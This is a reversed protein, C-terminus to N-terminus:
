PLIPKASLLDCLARATEEWPAIIAYDAYDFIPAKKDTNVAAVVKAEKMGAIHQVAGSIGFALYLKPRVFAGTLGIQCEYPAFNALVASRSAGLAANPIFSVLSRLVDFGEKSGIARGGAVVVEASQLSLKDTEQSVSSLIKLLGSIEFKEYVVEGREHYDERAPLLASERVTAMQPRAAECLIEASLSGGFAPRFQHLLGDKGLTVNICDATLGTSLLAATMPAVTRLSITSPFLVIEPKERNFLGKLALAKGREDLGGPFAYVKEAGVRFFQAFNEEGFTVAATLYGDGRGMERMTSLLNKGALGDTVVFIM